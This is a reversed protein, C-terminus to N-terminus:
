HLIYKVPSQQPLVPVCCAAVTLSEKKYFFGRVGGIKSSTATRSYECQHMAWPPPIKVTTQAYFFTGKRYIIFKALAVCSADTDFSSTSVCISLRNMVM